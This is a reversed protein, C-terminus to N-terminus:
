APRHLATRQRRRRMAGGLLGFGVIMMAWTDPEPVADFRGDTLANLAAARGIALGAENDFSWHIGGWLRSSAAEQAASAFDGFCRNIGAATLCFGDGAGLKETLVTAAANSLASHGSTYSPHPPAVIWSAWDDVQITDPNGDTDANQIATVPRWFDYVFKANWTAIAADAIGISLLAFLEANELTTLGDIQSQDSGARFWTGFPSNAWFVAADSQDATRTASTASGLEMVELYAATYEASTLAPPPGPLFEAPSSMLWPTVNAYQPMLPPAFGPPTPAWDGPLGTPSYSGMVSSGDNLRGAIAAAAFAAGTAIGDTKAQGDAVLALSAFLAADFEAAKAPNLHVLVDHAAVSAAARTDGGANAINAYYARDPNNYTANVADFMAVNVMAYSRSQVVPPGAIGSMLLENWYLVPDGTVLVTGGSAPVAPTLGAFAVCALLCARPNWTIKM